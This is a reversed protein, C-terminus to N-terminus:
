FLGAVLVGEDLLIVSAEVGQLLHPQGGARRDLVVRREEPPVTDEVEDVAGLLPSAEVKVHLPEIGAPAQDIPSLQCSGGPILDPRAEGVAGEVAEEPDGVDMLVTRAPVDEDLRSYRHVRHGDAPSGHLEAGRSGVAGVGEGDPEM